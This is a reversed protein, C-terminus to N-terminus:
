HRGTDQSSFFGADDSGIDDGIGDRRAPQLANEDERAARNGGDEVLQAHTANLREACAM